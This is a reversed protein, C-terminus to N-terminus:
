FIMYILYIIWGWALKKAATLRHFGFHIYKWFITTHYAYFICEWCLPIFLFSSLFLTDRLKLSLLILEMLGFSKYTTRGTRQPQGPCSYQAWSEGLSTMARQRWTVRSVTSTVTWSAATQLPGAGSASPMLEQSVKTLSIGRGKSVERYEDRKKDM